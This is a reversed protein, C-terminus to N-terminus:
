GEHVNFKLFCGLNSIEFSYYCCSNKLFTMTENINEVFCNFIKFFSKTLSSKNQNKKRESQWWFGISESFIPNPIEPAITKTPTVRMMM